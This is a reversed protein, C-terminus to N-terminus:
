RTQCSLYEEGFHNYKRLSGKYQYVDKNNISVCATIESGANNYRRPSKQYFYVPGNLKTSNALIQQMDPHSFTRSGSVAEYAIMHKTPQTYQQLSSFEDSMAPKFAQHQNIRVGEYQNQFSDSRTAQTYTPGMNQTPSIGIYQGGYTHRIRGQYNSNQTQVTNYGVTLGNSTQAMATNTAYSLAAIILPISLYKM